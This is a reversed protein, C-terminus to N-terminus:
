NMYEVTCGYASTERVSIKDETGALAHEIADEVYFDKPEGRLYVWEDDGQEMAPSNHLLGMYVLERNKNFVFFEPTVSTGLARGLQQSDDRLYRFNFGREEARERMADMKDLYNINFSMAVVAVSQDEFKEVLKILDEEIGRSFPCTNSLSVLLVVDEDLDSSSLAEGSVTPLESFSPMPDGINLVANYEGALASQFALCLGFVSFLHLPRLLRPVHKM